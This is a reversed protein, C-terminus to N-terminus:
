PQIRIYNNLQDPYPVTTHSEESTHIFGLTEGPISFTSGEDISQLYEGTRVKAEDSTMLMDILEMEGTLDTQTAINRVLNRLLSEKSSIFDLQDQM